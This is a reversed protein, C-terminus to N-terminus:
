IYSITKKSVPSAPVSVGGANGFMRLYKDKIDEVDIAKLAYNRASVSWHTFEDKEMNAFFGIANALEATDDIDVNWGASQNRLDNWPTYHSTIVPLGSTFAEFLSHGFNESKSPQIFLHSMALVEPIMVPPLEGHYNVKINEPLKAIVARCKNWYEADKVPGFIHYVVEAKCSMLANLVLLHNKMPSILAVTCLILQGQKKFPLKQLALIHPLNPVVWIKTRRGFTNIIHDKEEISTAHYECRRHLRFMKWIFLYAKKKFSKQSLGGPHLMGRVSIIKRGRFTIAPLFSFHVSYIGNIFFTTNWERISNRIGSFGRATYFVSAEGTDTWTDAAVALRTGDHDENSCIVKMEVEKHLHHVLNVLSQIPGGAKYAPIFFDYIIYLSM